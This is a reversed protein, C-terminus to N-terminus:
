RRAISRPATLAALRAARRAKAEDARRENDLVWLAMVAVALVLLAFPTSM